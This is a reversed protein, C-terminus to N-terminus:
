ANKLLTWNDWKKFDYVYRRYYFLVGDSMIQIKFFNETGFIVSAGSFARGNIQYGYVLYYGNRLQEDSEYAGRAKLPNGLREELPLFFPVSYDTGIAHYSNLTHSIKSQNCSKWGIKFPGSDTNGFVM